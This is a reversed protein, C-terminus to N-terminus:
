NISSVLMQIAAANASRKAKIAEIKAQRLEERTAITQGRLLAVISQLEGNDLWVGHEPCSDIQVGLFRELQMFETCIPCKRQGDPVISANANPELDKELASLFQMTEADSSM